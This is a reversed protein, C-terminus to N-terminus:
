LLSLGGFYAFLAALLAVGLGATFGLTWLFWPARVHFALAVIGLIVAILLLVPGGYALGLQGMRWLLDKM